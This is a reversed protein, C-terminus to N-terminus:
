LAAEAQMAMGAKVGTAAWKTGSLIGENMQLINMRLVQNDKCAIFVGYNADASIITGPAANIEGNHDTPSVEWIKLPQGNIHCFAGQYAPNCANVLQEIEIASQQQWDITLDNSGPRSYYSGDTNNQVVLQLTDINAVLYQLIPMCIHHLRAALLGYTEGPFIPTHQQLAIPGMDMRETMHHITVGTQPENNKLQWFLPDPGRYAPLPSYHVNYAGHPFLGLIAAPIRFSFSYTILLGAHQQACWEALSDWSQPTDAVKFIDTTALGSNQLVPQLQVDYHAPIVLSCAHGEQRLLSLVSLINNGCSFLIIKM